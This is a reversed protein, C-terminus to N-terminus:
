AAKPLDLMTQSAPRVRNIGMIGTMQSTIPIEAGDPTVGWLEESTFPEAKNMRAFMPYCAFPWHDQQKWADVLHGAVIACLFASLFGIRIRSM